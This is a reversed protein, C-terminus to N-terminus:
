PKKVSFSSFTSKAESVFSSLPFFFVFLSIDDSVHANISHSWEIYIYSIPNCNDYVSVTWPLLSLPGDSRDMGSVISYM